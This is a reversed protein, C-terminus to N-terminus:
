SRSLLSINITDKFGQRIFVVINIINTVTGFLSLSGCLFVYVLVQLIQRLEHGVPDVVHLVVGVSTSNVDM